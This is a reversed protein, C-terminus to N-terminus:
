KGTEGCPRGGMQRYPRARVGRIAGGKREAMELGPRVRVKPLKESLKDYNMGKQALVRVEDIPLEKEEHNYKVKITQVTETQPTVNDVQPKTSTPEM